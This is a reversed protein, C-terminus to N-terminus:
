RSVGAALNGSADWVVAGVTDQREHLGDVQSLERRTTDLEESSTLQQNAQAHELQIKWKAWEHEARPSILSEPPICELNRSKAFGSAGSSVLVRSVLNSFFVM